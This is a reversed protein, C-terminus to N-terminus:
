SIRGWKSRERQIDRCAARNGVLVKVNSRSNRVHVPVNIAYYGMCVTHKVLDNSTAPLCAPIVSSSVAFM